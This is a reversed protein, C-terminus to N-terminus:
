LAEHATPRPLPIGCDALGRRFSDDLPIPKLGENTFQGVRYTQDSPLGYAPVVQAQRFILTQGAVMERLMEKAKDGSAVTSTATMGSALKMSYAMADEVAKDAQANGTKYSPPMPISSGNGPPNDAAKLERHPNSDVRWLIDGSPMRIKGGTSVGVLLGLRSNNEVIPYLYGFRSFELRGIKDYVAVVCTSAGTIPDTVHTTAWAERPKKGAIAPTGGGVLGICALVLLARM